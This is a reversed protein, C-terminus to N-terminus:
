NTKFIRKIIRDAEKVIKQHGKCKTVDKCKEALFVWKSCNKCFQQNPDFPPPATM